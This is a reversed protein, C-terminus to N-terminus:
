RVRARDQTEERTLYRGDAKLFPKRALAWEMAEEYAEEEMLEALLERLLQSVSTNRKAAEIRAWRAVDERVRV